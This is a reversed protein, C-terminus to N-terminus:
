SGVGVRNEMQYQFLMLQAISHGQIQSLKPLIIRGPELCSNPRAQGILEDLRERQIEGQGRVMELRPNQLLHDSLGRMVTGGKYPAIGVIVSAACLLACPVCPVTRAPM